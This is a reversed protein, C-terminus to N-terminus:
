GVLRESHCSRTWVSPKPRPWNESTEGWEPGASLAAKQTRLPQGSQLAAQQAYGQQPLGEALVRPQPTANALM